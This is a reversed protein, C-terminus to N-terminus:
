EEPSDQEGEPLQAIPAAQAEETDFEAEIVEDMQSAYMEPLAINVADININNEVLYEVLEQRNSQQPAINELGNLNMIKEIAKLRTGAPTRTSTLLDKLQGMAIPLMDALAGQAAKYRPDKGLELFLDNYAIDFEETKTVERVQHISMDMERAIETLSRPTDLDLFLYAATTALEQRKLAEREAKNLKLRRHGHATMRDKLVGTVKTPDVKRKSM